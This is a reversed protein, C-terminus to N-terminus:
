KIFIRYKCQKKFTKKKRLYLSKLKPMIKLKEIIINTIIKFDYRM